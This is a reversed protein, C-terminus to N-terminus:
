QFSTTNYFRISYSGVTSYGSDKDYKEFRISLYYKGEQRVNMSNPDDETGLNLRLSISGDTGNGVSGTGTADFMSTAGEAKEMTVSDWSTNGGERELSYTIRSIEGANFAGAFKLTLLNPGGVVTQQYTGVSTTVDGKLTTIDDSYGILLPSTGLPLESPIGNDYSSLGNYFTNYLTSYNDKISTNVKKPYYDTLNMISQGSQNVGLLKGETSENVANDYELDMLAYFQLRYTTEPKLPKNGNTGYSTQYTGGMEHARNMWNGNPDILYYQSADTGELVQYTGDTQKEALRVFYRGDLSTFNVDNVRYSLKISSGSRIINAVQILAKEDTDLSLSAWSVTNSSAVGEPHSASDKKSVLVWDDDAKQYVAAKIRYTYGPCIQGGAYYPVSMLNSGKQVLVPNHTIDQGNVGSDYYQWYWPSPVAAKEREDAIVTKWNNDDATDEGEPCRELRYFIQLTEQEAELISSTIKTDVTLKKDKYGATQGLDLTVSEMELGEGTQVLVHGNRIGPVPQFVYNRNTDTIAKEIDEAKGPNETDSVLYLKGNEIGSGLLSEDTLGAFTGEGGNKEAIAKDKYYIEIWYQAKQEKLPLSLDLKGKSDLLSDPEGAMAGVLDGKQATTGSTTYKYVLYYLHLEEDTPYEVLNWNEVTGALNVMVIGGTGNISAFAPAASEVTVSDAGEVDYSAIEMLELVSKGNYGGSSSLEITDLKKDECSTDFSESHISVTQSWPLTGTNEYSAKVKYLSRGAGASTDAISSHSTYRYRAMSVRTNTGYLDPESIYNVFKLAYDKESYYESDGVGGDGTLYYVTMHFSLRDNTHYQLDDRETSDLDSLKFRLYYRYDGSGSSPAEPYLWLTKKNKDVKQIQGTLADREYIYEGTTENKVQISVGAISAAKNLYDKTLYYDATKTETTLSDNEAKEMDKQSPGLYIYMTNHDESAQANTLTLRDKEDNYDNHGIYNHQIIPINKYSSGPSFGVDDLLLYDATLMYSIGDTRLNSVTILGGQDVVGDEENENRYTLYRSIEELDDATLKRVVDTLPKKEDEPDYVTTTDVDISRSSGNQHNFSFKLYLNDAETEGERMVPMDTGFLTYIGGKESATSGGTVNNDKASQLISNWHIANDPDDVYVKWEDQGGYSNSSTQKLWSYVEPAQRKVSVTSSSLTNNKIYHVNQIDEYYSGPYHFGTKETGESDKYTYTPLEAEYAFVYSQGRSFYREDMYYILVDKGNVKRASTYLWGKEDDLSGAADIGSNEETSAAGIRPLDDENYFLLWVEPVNLYENAGMELKCKLQYFNENNEDLKTTPQDTSMMNKWDTYTFGYYYFTDTTFEADNRYKCTLKLGAVTDADWYPSYLANQTDDGNYAGLESNKLSEVKIYDGGDVQLESGPVIYPLTEVKMLGSLSGSKIYLENVYADRGSKYTYYDYLGSDPYIDMYDYRAETYDYAAAAKIYYEGSTLANPQIEMGESDLFFYPYNSKGVGLVGKYGQAKYENWTKWANEGYFKEYLSNTDVDQNGATHENSIVCTGVPQASGKRYLEFRISNLGRYSADTNKRYADKDSYNGNVYYNKEATNNGLYLIVGIGTDTTDQAMQMEIARESRTTVAVSGMTIRNYGGGAQEYGYLTFMYPIDAKLGTLDVKMNLESYSDLPVEAAPSSENLPRLQYGAGSEVSDFKLSKYYDPEGSIQLEMPHETSIVYRSNTSLNVKINGEIANFTIGSNRGEKAEEATNYTANDGYFSLTTRTIGALKAIDWAYVNQQHETSGSGDGPGYYTEIVPFETQKEGDHYTYYARLYYTEGVRVPADADESVKFYAIYGSTATEVAVPNKGEKLTDMDKYLEFRISQIADDEDQVSQYKNNEYKGLVEALLYGSDYATLRVGGVVPETKLTTVTYDYSISGDTGMQVTVPDGNSDFSYVNFVPRFSVEFTQNSRNEDDVKITYQEFDAKQMYGYHEGNLLVEVSDVDVLRNSEKLAFSVSNSTRDVLEFSIGYDDAIFTRTLLAQSGTMDNVVYDANITLRYQHGPELVNCYLEFGEASDESLDIQQGTDGRDGEWDWYYVEQGTGIDVLSIRTSEEVVSNCSVEDMYATFKLTKGNVVWSKLTVVPISTSVAVGSMQGGSAGNAGMVGATGTNGSDGASGDSDSSGTEGQEGEDGDEGAQGIEGSVGDTGNEGDEGNIVTFRYIPYGNVEQWSSSHDTHIEIDDIYVTQRAALTDGDAMEEGAGVPLELEGTELNLRVGNELEIYAGASLFQWANVGDNLLVVSKDESLYEIEVFGTEIFEGRQSAPQVLSLTPSGLLYRTSSSKILFNGFEVSSEGEGLSYSSGNWGLPEGQELGYYQIMGGAFEDLNMVSVDKVATISSTTYHVFSDIPIETRDGQADRFSIEGKKETWSTGGSFWLQRSVTVNEQGKQASATLVYGDEEFTTKKPSQLIFAGVALTLLGVLALGIVTIMSKSKLLM